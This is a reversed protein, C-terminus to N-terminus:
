EQTNSNSGEGDNSQETRNNGAFTDLMNVVGDNPVSGSVNRGMMSVMIMAMMNQQNQMQQRQMEIQLHFEQRREEREERREDRDQAQSMMMMAMVNGVRNGATDEPSNERQRNRPRSIPTNHTSTRSRNNSSSTATSSITMSGRRGRSAVMPPLRPAEEGTPADSTPAESSDIPEIPADDVYSRQDDDQNDNNNDSSGSSEGSEPRGEMGGGRAPSNLDTGDMMEIIANRLQKARRVAPPCHPDGTPIRKIHLEKFKRKLSDVTRGKDPYRASHIELVSEWQTTSLPLIDEVSDLFSDLEERSFNAGRPM